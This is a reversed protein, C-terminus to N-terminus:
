GSYIIPWFVSTLDELSATIEDYTRDLAKGWGDALSAEDIGLELLAAMVKKNKKPGGKHSQATRLDNLAFFVATPTDPPNTSIRKSIEKGDSFFNLGTEFAVILYQILLKLLRLSRFKKIENEPVGISVLIRRLYSEKINEAVFKYLEVCRQLYHDQTMNMPIHSTIPIIDPHNWWGSYNLERINLGISNDSTVNEKLVKTGLTSLAEGFQLFSYCIKKSRTAVNKMERLDDMSGVPPDVAHKHWHRTVHPPVGEYIKKLEVAIIDRGVRQNFTVGWQGSYSVGGTEPYIEYESRKEYKALVSDSIYVLAMRSDMAKQHNVPEEIGPWVLIGYDENGKTIPSDGPDLLHRVGWVQAFFEKDALKIFRLDILRGPLEFEAIKKDGMYNITEQGAEGWKNAYYVQILSFGRLTAYDQLYDRNVRVFAHSRTPFDYYSVPSVIAVSQRPHYPDDYHIEDRKNNKLYRPILGYTMLFGPDLFLTTNNAAEWSLVLPELGELSHAKASIWFRPFYKSESDTFSMM